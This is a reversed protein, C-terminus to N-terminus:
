RKRLTRGALACMYKGKEVTVVGNVIIYEIGEPYQHPDQYTAKDIVTGPDFVVMDAWMGPRLLGRDLIGFRQAPFSTMKRVAEELRLVGLERVYRGLIRLYTGYGRPHPKGRRMFGTTSSSGSDTGVMQLPHRMIRRVDEEEMAFIVMGVAGEEELILDFLSTFADPDGRMEMIEEMNKGELPKNEESVVRTVLVNGWGLEGAFNEWGEIGKEINRRMRDRLEPDQLRSLLKEMGGEHAWPPLCTVLSTSGARYPYQDVTIDVGRSRAEELLALSEVSRGWASKTAAKHHSIQVPIGIKEGIEIAEELSRMLTKGEGRLHTDYVGGYRAAVKTVEVIEETKAFVGPPYILGTSLGFAGAEMAEATLERMSELEGPTPERAEYGMAAIRITGHGVLHAVNAGLGEKEEERLYDDFTTWTITPDVEPPLFKARRREMEERLDPNVPAPSSGCQGAVVTTIGQMVTSEMQRYYLTSGDSHSHADIFGPAVVMGGADIVREFEADSLRGVMAVKGDIVAVDGRYWPNGTGDVVKGEKVVLDYSM